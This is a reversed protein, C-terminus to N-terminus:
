QLERTTTQDTVDQTVWAKDYDDAGWLKSSKPHLAPVKDTGDTNSLEIDKVYYVRTGGDNNAIVGFGILVIGNAAKITAADTLTDRNTFTITQETWDTASSYDENGGASLLLGGPTANSMGPRKTIDDLWDATYNGWARLRGTKKDSAPDVKLKFVIRDYDGFTKGSALEFGYVPVTGNGVATIKEVWDTPWVEAAITFTAKTVLITANYSGNNQWTIAGSHLNEHSGSGPGIPYTLTNAGETLTPYNNTTCDPSWVLHGNKSIFQTNGTPTENFTVTFEFTVESWNGDPFEYGMIASTGPFTIAGTTADRTAAGGVGFEPNDVVLVSPLEGQTRIRARESSVSTKEGSASTNTIIVYYYAEEAVSGIEPKYTNSNTGVAVGAGTPGLAKFWQYSLTGSDTVAATVSLDAVSAAPTETQYSANALSAASIVPTQPPNSKPRGALDLTLKGFGKANQYAQTNVGNWTLIGDRGGDGGGQTNLQLEFGIVANNIVEGSSNFVANANDSTKFKFPVHAIVKYGGNTAEAATAVYSGTPGKMVTRTKTYNADTFPALTSAAEGLQASAGQGSRDNLVGLRFQNGIDQTVVDPNLAQFRENVFIEVSDKNHADGITGLTRDKTAGSGDTFTSFTVDVLVWIGDDDWLAKASANTHPAARFYGATTEAMNVRSIQFVEAEGDWIPDIYFANGPNVPDVLKPVGYKITAEMPIVISMRYYLKTGNSSFPTIEFYLYTNGQIPHTATITSWSVGAATLATWNTPLATEKSTGYEPNLNNGVKFPEVEEDRLAYKVAAQADQPIAIFQAATTIFDTQFIGSNAATKVADWDTGPKGLWAETARPTSGITVNALEANKGLSIDVRYFRTNERNESTVRIVLIDGDEFTRGEPNNSFGGLDNGRKVAFEVTAKNSSSSLEYVLKKDANAGALQLEAGEFSDALVADASLAWGDRTFWAPGMLEPSEIDVNLWQLEAGEQDGSPGPEDNPGPCGALGLAIMVATLALGIKILKKKM